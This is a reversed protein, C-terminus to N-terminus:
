LETAAYWIAMFCTWVITLQKLWIRIDTRSLSLYLFINVLSNFTQDHCRWWGVLKCNFLTNFELVLVFFTVDVIGCDFQKCEWNRETNFSKRELLQKM